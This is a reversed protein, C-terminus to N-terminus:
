APYPPGVFNPNGEYIIQNGYEDYFVSVIAVSLAIIGVIAMMVGGAAGCTVTGVADAAAGTYFLISAEAPQPAFLAVMALVLLVGTARKWLKM